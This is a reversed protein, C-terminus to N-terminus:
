KGGKLNEKTRKISDAIIKKEVKSLDDKVDKGYFSFCIYGLSRSSIYMSTVFDAEKGKRDTLILSEPKVPAMRVKFSTAANLM